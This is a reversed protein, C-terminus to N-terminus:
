AMSKSAAAPRLRSPEARRATALGRFGAAAAVIAIFALGTLAPIPLFGLTADTPALPQHAAITETALAVLSTLLAAPVLSRRGGTGLQALAAIAGILGLRLAFWTPDNSVSFSSTNTFVLLGGFVVAYVPSALVARAEFGLWVVLATFALIAIPLAPPIRRTYSTRGFVAARVTARQRASAADGRVLPRGTAHSLPGIGLLSAITPGVDRGRAIGQRHTSGAGWVVIPIRMVEPETGGHGGRDVNGHDATVVLADRAPDLRAVIRAIDGDARAVAARYAASAAGRAHATSDVYAIHAFVLQAPPLALDADDFRTVDVWSGYPARVHSDPETSLVATALGALKARRFVSDLHVEWPYSNTAVGSAAPEIGSAQAVVNPGTYTPFEAQGSFDDGEARLRNLTPMARSADLRLGDVLVWVVRTAPGRASSAAPAHVGLVPPRRVNLDTEYTWAAHGIGAGVVFACARAVLGRAASVRHHM